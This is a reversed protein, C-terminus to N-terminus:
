ESFFKSILLSSTTVVAGLKIIFREVRDLRSETTSMWDFLSGASMQRRTLGPKSFLAASLAGMTAAGGVVCATLFFSGVLSPMLDISVKGAASLVIFALFPQVFGILFLTWIGTDRKL